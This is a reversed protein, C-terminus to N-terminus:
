QKTKKKITSSVCSIKEKEKNGKQRKNFLKIEKKNQKTLNKISDDCFIYVSNNKNGKVNIAM